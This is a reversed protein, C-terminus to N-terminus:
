RPSLEYEYNSEYHNEEISTKQQKDVTKQQQIQNYQYVLSKILKIQNQVDSLEYEQYIKELKIFYEQNTTLPQQLRKRLKKPLRKRLKKPKGGFGQRITSTRTNPIGSSKDQESPRRTDSQTRPNDRRGINRADDRHSENTTDRNTGQFGELSRANERSARNDATAEPRTTQQHSKDNRHLISEERQANELEKIEQENKKIEQKVQNYEHILKNQEIERTKIGKRNLAAALPGIHTTPIKDIGQAEYSLHSITVAYRQLYKNCINAWEERLRVVEQSRTSLSDLERTKKTLEGNEMRRTTFMIHAHPNKPNDNHIAITTAVSYTKHIFSRYENMIQIREKESCECPLALTLKRATQSNKRKEAAEAMNWLTATDITTGDPLQSGLNYVGAKKSYNHNIGTQEDMFLSGSLYAAQAVSSQGKSRQTMSMHSSFIAM